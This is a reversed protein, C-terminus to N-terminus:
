ITDSDNDNDSDNTNDSEGNDEEQNDFVIEATSTTTNNLIIKSKIEDILLAKNFNSITIRFLKAIVDLELRSKNEWSGDDYSTSHLFTEIGEKRTDDAVKQDVKKKAAQELAQAQKVTQKEM